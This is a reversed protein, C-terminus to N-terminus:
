SITLTIRFQGSPLLKTGICHGVDCGAKVAPVSWERTCTRGAFGFDLTWFGSKSNNSCGRAQPLAELSFHLSSM